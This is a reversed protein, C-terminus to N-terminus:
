SLGSKVNMETGSDSTDDMNRAKLVRDYLTSKKIGSRAAAQRLSMSKSLVDKVATRITEEPADPVQKKRVYTRVM